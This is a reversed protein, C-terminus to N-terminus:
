VRLDQPEAPFHAAPTHNEPFRVGSGLHNRTLSLSIGRDKGGRPDVQTGNLLTRSQLAVM